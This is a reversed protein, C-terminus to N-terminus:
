LGNGGPLSQGSSTGPFGPGVNLTNLFPVKARHSATFAVPAKGNGMDVLGVMDSFNDEYGAFTEQVKGDAVTLKFQRGDFTGNFPLKEKGHEWYGTITNDNNQQMLFHSYVTKAGGPQLQIEWVGSLNTFQPPGPTGSGEPKPSGRIRRGAPPATQLSRGIPTNAPPATYIPAAPGPAQSVELIPTPPAPPVPGGPVQQAVGAAATFLAALGVAAIGITRVNL